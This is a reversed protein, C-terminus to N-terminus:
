SPLGSVFAPLGPNSSTVSNLLCCRQEEVTEVASTVRTLPFIAGVGHHFYESFSDDDEFGDITDDDLGPDSEDKDHEDALRAFVVIETPEPINILNSFQGSERHQQSHIHFSSRGRARGM